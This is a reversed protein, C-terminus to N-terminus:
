VSTMFQNRLACAEAPQLSRAHLRRRAAARARSSGKVCADFGLAPGRAATIVIENRAICYGQDARNVM